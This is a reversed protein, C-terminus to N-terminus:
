NSINLTEVYINILIIIGLFQTRSYSTLVQLFSLQGWEEVDILLQCLKRFNKHILDIRGPCVRRYALVASGAVLPAKDHDFYFDKSGQRDLLGTNCDPIEILEKDGLLRSIIEILEDHCSEDTEALKPIAHAATKRVYPSMDAAAEKIGQLM